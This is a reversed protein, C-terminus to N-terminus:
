SLEILHKINEQWDYIRFGNKDRKGSDRVGMFRTPNFPSDLNEWRDKVYDSISLHNEGQKVIRTHSNLYKDIAGTPKWEDSILDFTIKRGKSKKIAYSIQYKNWSSFGPFQDVGSCCCNNDSLYQIENDAAGFTINRKAAEKKVKLANKLKYEPPLILERGDFLSSHLRYFERIDFDLKTALKKWLLNNKEIPLKLHEFGLHRIGASSVTTLFQKPSESVGPIYPQWRATTIINNSSLIEIAELIESPNYSHPEILQSLQDNTTSFSFQVVTNKNQKLVALYEKEAIIPSKTSIVVPYEISALYKLIQLSIKEKKEIPQFPDSMGGFHLPTRNRILESVIGSNQEPRQLANNFKNIVSEPKAFRIKSTNANGGRIRAFCYTCSLACGAYSDLRLPLGCFSFQSTLGLPTKYERNM